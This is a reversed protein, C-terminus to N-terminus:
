KKIKKWKPKGHTYDKEKSEVFTNGKARYLKNGHMASDLFSMIYFFKAVRKDMKNTIMDKWNDPTLIYHLDFIDCVMRPTLKKEIYKGEKELRITIKLDKPHKKM